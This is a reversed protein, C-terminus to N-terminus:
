GEGSAQHDQCAKHIVELVGQTNNLVENDLVRMVNFGQEQLWLDRLRDDDLQSAHCAGDVEVVLNREYCVFDVIYRGIPEQRRFKAGGIRRARLHKWLRREADTSRRRLGRAVDTPRSGL